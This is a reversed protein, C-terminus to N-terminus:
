CKDVFGTSTKTAKSTRECFQSFRSSAEGNRDTQGDRQMSLEAGVQGIKM